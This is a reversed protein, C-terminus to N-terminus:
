RMALRCWPCCGRWTVGSAVLGDDRPGRSFASRPLVFYPRVSALTEKLGAPVGTCIVAGHRGRARTVISIITVILLSLCGRGVPLRVSPHLSSVM